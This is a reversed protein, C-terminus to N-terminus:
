KVEKKTKRRLEWTLHKINSIQYLEETDGWKLRKLVLQIDRNEWYWANSKANCSEKNEYHYARSGVNCSEKNEWYWASGNANCSEKNELYYASDNTNALKKNKPISRYVRNYASKEEKNM